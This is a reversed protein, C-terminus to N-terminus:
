NSPSENASATETPAAGAPVLVEVPVGAPMGKPNPMELRVVRTRSAADAVHALSMVTAYQLEGPVLTELGGRYRVTLTQGISLDLTLEVPVAVDIRFASDDVLRMVPALEDVAGGAEIRVEEVLGGFTAEMRTKAHRAKAGDLEIAAEKKRQRALEFEAFTRKAESWADDLERPKAAQQEFAEKVRGYTQSALEWAAQAAEIEHEGQARVELLRVTAALDDGDLQALLQGAKVREGRRVLVAQLRGSVGFALDLDRVPRTIAPCGITPQPAPDGACSVWMALIPALTSASANM